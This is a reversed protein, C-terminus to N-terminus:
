AGSSLETTLRFLKNIKPQRALLAIGNIQLLFSRIVTRAPIILQFSKNFLPFRTEFAGSM